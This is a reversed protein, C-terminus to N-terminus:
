RGASLGFYAHRPERWTAPHDQVDADLLNRVGGFLQLPGLDHALQVDLGVYDGADGLGGAMEAGLPVIRGVYLARAWLSWDDRPEWYTTLAMRNEPVTRLRDGSQRDELWTRSWSGRLRLHSRVRIEFESELGRSELGETNVYGMEAPLGPFPAPPSAHYGLIQSGVIGDDLAVFTTLTTAFWSMWLSKWGLEFSTIQEPELDDNGLITMPFGPITEVRFRSRTEIFSPNRYATGAAFSLLQGAKPLFLLSGRPSVQLGVRPDHDARVGLNLIWDDGWRFEDLAFLAVGVDNRGEMGDARQSALHLNAGVLVDHGSDFAFSRLAELDLVDGIVDVVASARGPGEPRWDGRGHNVFGRLNWPGREVNAQVYGSAGDVDVVGSRVDPVIETRAVSIGAAFDVRTTGTARNSWRANARFSEGSPDDGLAALVRGSVRSLGTSLRWAGHRTSEGYRVDIDSRERSTRVASSIGITDTVELTRINVVGAFANAGYVASGPGRTVEISHIEELGVPLRNWLVNGYFDENQPRGDILVLMTNSLFRVAGRASVDSTSATTTVVELGAVRRLLDPVDRAASDLIEERTILTVSTPVEGLKQETRSVTVIEVQLLDELSMSELAATDAAASTAVMVVGLLWNRTVSFSQM